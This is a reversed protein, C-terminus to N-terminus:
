LAKAVRNGHHLIFIHFGLTVLDIATTLKVIGSLVM